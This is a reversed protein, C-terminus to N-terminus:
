NAVFVVCAPQYDSKKELGALIKKNRHGKKKKQLVGFKKKLCAKKAQGKKIKPVGKMSVKWSAKIEVGGARKGCKGASSAEVWVGSEAIEENNYHGTGL